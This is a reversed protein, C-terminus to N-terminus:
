NNKKPEPSKSKAKEDAQKLIAAAVQSPAFKKYMSRRIVKKVDKSLELDAERIKEYIARIEPKSVDPLMEAMFNELLIFYTTQQDPSGINNKIGYIAENVVGALTDEFARFRVLETQVLPFTKGVMKDTDTDPRSLVMKLADRLHEVAQAETGADAGTDAKKALNVRENIAARMADLDKGRLQSHTYVTATAGLTYLLSGLVIALPWNNSIKMSVINSTVRRM